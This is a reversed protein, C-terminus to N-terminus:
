FGEMGVGSGNLLPRVRWLVVVVLVVVFILGNEKLQNDRYTLTFYVSVIVGGVQPLLFLLLM